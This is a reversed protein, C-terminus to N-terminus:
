RLYHNFDKKLIQIESKIFSVAEKKSKFKKRCYFGDNTYDWMQYVIVYFRKDIKSKIVYFSFSHHKEDYTWKNEKTKAETINTWHVRKFNDSIKKFFSGDIFGDSLSNYLKEDDYIANSLMENTIEKTACALILDYFISMDNGFSSRNKYILKLFLNLDLKKKLYNFNIVELPRKNVHSDFKGNKWIATVKDGKTDVFEGYGHKKNNKWFGNYYSGDEWIYKGLGNRKGAKFEGEYIDGNPFKKKM